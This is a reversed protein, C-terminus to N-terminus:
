RLGPAILEAALYNTRRGGMGIAPGGDSRADDTSLKAGLPATNAVRRANLM